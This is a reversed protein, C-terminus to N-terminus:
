QSISRLIIFFLAITVLGALIYFDNFYFFDKVNDQTFYRKPKASIDKKFKFEDLKDLKFRLYMGGIQYAELEGNKVRERLQKESIDLYLAAEAINLLREKNEM